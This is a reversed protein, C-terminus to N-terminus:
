ARGLTEDLGDGWTLSQPVRTQYQVLWVADALREKRQPYHKELWWEGKRELVYGTREEGLVARVVCLIEGHKAEIEGHCGTTGSGCVWLFNAPVDDGGNGRPVIHHLGM